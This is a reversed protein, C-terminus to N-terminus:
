FCVQPTASFCFIFCKDQVHSRASLRWFSVSAQSLVDFDDSQSQRSNSSCLAHLQTVHIAALIQVALCLHKGCSLSKALQTRIDIGLAWAVM